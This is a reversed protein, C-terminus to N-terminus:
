IRRLKCLLRKLTFHSKIVSEFRSHLTLLAGLLYRTNREETVISILITAHGMMLTEATKKKEKKHHRKTLKTGTTTNGTHSMFFLYLSM